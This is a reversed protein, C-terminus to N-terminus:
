APGTVGSEAFLLGRLSFRTSVKVAWSALTPLFSMSCFIGRGTLVSGPFVLPASFHSRVRAPTEQLLRSGSGRSCSFLPVAENDSSRILPLQVGDECAGFRPALSTLARFARDM